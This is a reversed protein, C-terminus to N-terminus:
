PGMYPIAYGGERLQDLEEDTAETIEYGLVYAEAPAVPGKDEIVLVPKNEPSLSPETTMYGEGQWMRLIPAKSRLKM